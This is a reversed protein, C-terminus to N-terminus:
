LTCTSVQLFTVNHHILGYMHCTSTRLMCCLIFRRGANKDTYTFWAVQDCLDLEGLINNNFLHIHGQTSLLSPSPYLTYSPYLMFNGDLLLMDNLTYATGHYSVQANVTDLQM